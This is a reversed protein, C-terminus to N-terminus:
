RFTALFTNKKGALVLLFYTADYGPEQPHFWNKELCFNIRDQQSLFKKIIDVANEQTYNEGEERNQM